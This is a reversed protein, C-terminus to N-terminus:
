RPRLALILEVEGRPKGLEAAIEQASKGADALGYIDQHRTDGTTVSPASVPASRLAREAVAFQRIYREAPDEVERLPEERLVESSGGRKQQEILQKLEEIKQDAEHILADLKMTRSDIQGSMQRAMESLEVLLNQMDREFARQQSLGFQPLKELPDPKKKRLMPRLVMYVVLVGGVAYIIWDNSGAALVLLSERMEIHRGM